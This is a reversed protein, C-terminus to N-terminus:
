PINFWMGPQVDSFSNSRTMFQSRTPEDLLRFFITAVEARTINGAPNVTGDPYGVIYAYHDERNLQPGKDTPEVPKSPKSPSLSREYYVKIVGGDAITEPM